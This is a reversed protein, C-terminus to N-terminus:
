LNLLETRGAAHADVVSQIVDTDVRGGATISDAAGAALMMETKIWTNIEEAYKDANLQLAQTQDEIMRKGAVAMIGATTLIISGIVITIVSITLRGKITRFM